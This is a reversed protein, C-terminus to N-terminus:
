VVDLAQILWRAGEEFTERSTGHGQHGIPPTLRLEIHPSRIGHSHALEALGYVFDFCTKTGVRTDRNSMYLRIHKHLLDAARYNLDLAEAIANNGLAQCEKTQSMQILPAFGLIMHALCLRAGVQLAVFAGRSLGMLAIKDALIFGETVFSAISLAVQDLFPTLTDIGQAMQEAWVEIAETARYGAGHAPLDLSFIRLPFSTLLAVAQNFPDTLLSEEASLAFYFVAPLPGHSLDPGVYYFTQGTSSICSRM